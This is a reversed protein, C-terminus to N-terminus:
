RMPFRCRPRLGRQRNGIVQNASPRAVCFQEGSISRLGWVQIEESDPAGRTPSVPMSGTVRAHFDVFQSDFEFAVEVEVREQAEVWGAVGAVLGDAGLDGEVGVGGGFGDLFEM